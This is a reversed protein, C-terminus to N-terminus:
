RGAESTKRFISKIRGLKSSREALLKEIIVQRLYDRGKIYQSTTLSHDQRYPPKEKGLRENLNLLKELPKKRIERCTEPNFRTGVLSFWIDLCTQKGMEIGGKM